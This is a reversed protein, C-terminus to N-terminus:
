WEANVSDVGEIKRDSPPDVFVRDGKKLGELVSIRDGSTMGVKIPQFHAPSRSDTVYVGTKGDNQTIVAALPITTANELPQSLFTLRVNMGAKLEKLGNQLAVKVRFSTVNNEQVARPAILKVRGQFTKNAYADLQVKVSQGLFIQAISAEPIKAEIELGSSLEAISTSTAGETASASTTPAISDGEQAFRRTVIGAFPARIVTDNLQTQYYALQAKAQSVEAEAQAIEESRTGNELQRLSEKAQAVAAKRQAIEKIKSNQLQELKKQVEQLTAKATQDDTEYENLRDAAIAGERELQQYRNLRNQSLEAKAVAADIESRARDIEQIRTDNIQELEARAQTYRAKAQAIEESRPGALKQALDAEAKNLLARYQNVQAELRNSNLRAVIQGQTVRDGESIYLKVIRGADETSLNIKRVAEVIGNAQIQMVLNQTEVIVTQKTTDASDTESHTKLYAVSSIGIVGVAISGLIWFNLKKTLLLFQM